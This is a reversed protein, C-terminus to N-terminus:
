VNSQIIIKKRPGSKKFLIRTYESMLRIDDLTILGRDIAIHVITELFAQKGLEANIKTYYQKMFQATDFKHRILLHGGGYRKASADM